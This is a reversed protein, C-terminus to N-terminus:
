TRSRTLEVSEIHHHSRIAGNNDQAEHHRTRQLVRGFMKSTIERSSQRVKQDLACPYCIPLMWFCKLSKLSPTQDPKLLLFISIEISLMRVMSTIRIPKPFFYFILTYLAFLQRIDGRVRTLPLKKDAFKVPMM